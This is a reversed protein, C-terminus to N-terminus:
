HVSVGGGGLSCEIVPRDPNTITQGNIEDFRIALIVNEKVKTGDAQKKNETYFATLVTGLPIAPVHLEKMVRPNGRTPALCKSETSGSFMESKSGRKYELTLEGPGTKVVRGTFIEGHYNGPYFGSPATGKQALLFLPCFTFAVALLCRKM